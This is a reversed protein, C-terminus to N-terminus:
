KRRYDSQSARRRRHGTVPPRTFRALAVITAIAAVIGVVVWVFADAM